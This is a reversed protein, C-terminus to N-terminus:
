SGRISEQARRVRDLDSQIDPVRSTSPATLHEVTDILQELRHQAERQMGTISEAVVGTWQTTLRALDKFTEYRVKELFRTKVAGRMVTM